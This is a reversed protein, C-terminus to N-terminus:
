SLGPKSGLELMHGVNDWASNSVDNTGDSKVKEALAIKLVLLIGRAIHQLL